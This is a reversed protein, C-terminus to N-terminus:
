WRYWYGHRHYPYHYYNYYYPSYYYPRYYNYGWPYYGGCSPCGGDYFVPKVTVNEAQFNPEAQASSIGVTCLTAAALFLGKFFMSKIM